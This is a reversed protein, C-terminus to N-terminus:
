KVWRVNDGFRGLTNIFESDYDSKDGYIVVYDDQAHPISLLQNPEIFRYSIGEETVVNSIGSDPYLGLDPLKDELALKLVYRKVSGIAVIMIRMM